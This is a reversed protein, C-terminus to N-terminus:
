GRLHVRDHRRQGGAGGHNGQNFGRAASLVHLVHRRRLTHQAEREAREVVGDVEVDCTVLARQKIGSRADDDGRAARADGAGMAPTVGAM